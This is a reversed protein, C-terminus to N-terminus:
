AKSLCLFPHMNIVRFLLPPAKRDQWIATLNPHGQEGSTRTKSHTYVLYHMGQIPHCQVRVASWIYAHTEM